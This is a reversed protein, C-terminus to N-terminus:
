GRSAFDKKIRSETPDKQGQYKSKLKKDGYPVEAESSMKYFTLQGTRMHPYVKLPMRSINTIELTITGKFGPDIYGATAHVILGLRGLSSRGELRAVLDNPIEVYEVTAGLIFEGPHIIFGDKKNFEILESIDEPVKKVDIFPYHINKFIRVKPSLTIDITSPQLNKKIFPELVLKKEKIYKKIERDSLIM